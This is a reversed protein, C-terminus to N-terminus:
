LARCFRQVTDHGDLHDEGRVKGRRLMDAAKLDLGPRGGAHPVRVDRLDVVHALVVALVVKGHLVDLALAKGLPQRAPRKGEVRGRPQDCRNGARDLMQVGVADHM